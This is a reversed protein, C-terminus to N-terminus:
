YQYYPSIMLYVVVGTAAVYFWIPWTIKTWKKHKDFNGEWAHLYSFLVMPIVVVSLLIHSLLIIVYVMRAASSIQAKESDELIGNGSTDGYITSDSTMHYAVYCLLFMVSLGMCFKMLREHMDFKKQKVLILAAVLLVATLANIGAYLPPLFSLNVGPIKIVFLAAVAVPIVVSLVIILRRLNKSRKVNLEM